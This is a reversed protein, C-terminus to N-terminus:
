RSELDNAISKIFEMGEYWGMDYIADPHDPPDYDAAARLAAVISDTCVLDNVAVAADLVAQAAVSLPKTM